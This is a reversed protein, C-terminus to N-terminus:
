SRLSILMRPSKRILGANVQSTIHIVAITVCTSSDRELVIGRRTTRGAAFIVYRSKGNQGPFIKIVYMSNITAKANQVGREQWESKIGWNLCGLSLYIGILQYFGVFLYAEKRESLFGGKYVKGLDRWNAHLCRVVNKWTV